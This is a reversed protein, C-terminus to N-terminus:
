HGKRKYQRNTELRKVQGSLTAGYKKKELEKKKEVERKVAKLKKKM